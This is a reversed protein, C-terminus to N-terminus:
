DREIRLRKIMKARLKNKPLMGWVARKLVEGLGKKEILREMPTQRFGGPFGTHHYYIKQKLKRGTIKIKDIDRVVVFDGMDRYPVFDPKHKGRLLTAIEVALRGLSKGNADIIHTERM